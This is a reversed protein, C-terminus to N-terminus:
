AHRMRVFGIKQVRSFGNFLLFQFCEGVPIAVLSAQTIIASSVTSFNCQIWIDSFCQFPTGLPTGTINVVLANLNTTGTYQFDLSFGTADFSLTLPPGGAYATADSFDADVIVHPDAPPASDAKAVVSSLGVLMLVWLIRSFKM